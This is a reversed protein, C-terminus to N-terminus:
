QSYQATLRDSQIKGAWIGEYLMDDIHKEQGSLLINLGQIDFSNIIHYTSSSQDGASVKQILDGYHIEQKALYKPLWRRLKEVMISAQEISFWLKEGVGRLCDYVYSRYVDDTCYQEIYAVIAPWCWAFATFSSFDIEETLPIIIGSDMFIHQVFDKVDQAISGQEYRGTIGEWVEGLLNPMTRIIHQFYGLKSTTIGNMISVCVASRDYADFSVANLQGPKVCAFIIDAKKGLVNSQTTKTQIGMELSLWLEEGKAQVLKGLSSWM